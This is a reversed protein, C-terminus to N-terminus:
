NNLLDCESRWRSALPSLFRKDNAFITSLKYLVILLFQNALGVLLLHTM